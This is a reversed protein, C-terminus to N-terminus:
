VSEVAPETGLVDCVMEFYGRQTAPDSPISIVKLKKGGAPCYLICASTAGSDLVTAMAADIADFFSLKSPRAM